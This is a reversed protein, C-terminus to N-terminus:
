PRLDFTLTVLDVLAQVRASAYRTPRVRHGRLKNQICTAVQPQLAMCSLTVTILHHFYWAICQMCTLTQELEPTLLRCIHCITTPRGCWSREIDSTLGACRGVGEDGRVGTSWRWRRDRVVHSVSHRTTSKVDRRDTSGIQGPQTASWETLLTSQRWHHRCCAHLSLRSVAGDNYTLLYTLLYISKYLAMTSFSDSACLSISSSRTTPTSTTRYATLIQWGYGQIRKHSSQLALYWKSHIRM